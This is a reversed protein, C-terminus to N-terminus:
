SDDIMSRSAFLSFSLVETCDNTMQTLWHVISYGLRPQRPFTPIYLIPNMKTGPAGSPIDALFFITSM